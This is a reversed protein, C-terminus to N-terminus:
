GKRSLFQGAVVAGLAIVLGAVQWLTLAQDMAVVGIVAAVPPGVLSLLSVSTPALRGIGRFFLPYAAATAVIGIYAYGAVNAGTLHSPLGESLLTFPALLVGAITLQWGTMVLPSEGSGWKKTLVISLGILTVALLAAAVGLPDLAAQGTLTMLAVGGVGAVAALLVPLSTRLRLVLLSFGAVMLPQVAGITAAVGGPLRYAAFFILPLFAGFNLVALVTSKWWWAGHPLKRNVALLVLGAPLARLTAALMPRNDPLLAATVAYVTAWSAPALATLLLDQPNSGPGATKTAAGHTSGQAATAPAPTTTAQM